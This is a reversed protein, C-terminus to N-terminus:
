PTVNITGTMNHGVVSCHYSITVASAPMTVASSARGPSVPVSFSAGATATATHDMGDDNVWQVTQGVTASAPNPSFANAGSQSGGSRIHIVVDATTGGGGPGTPNSKSKCSSVAVLSAALLLASLAFRIQRRM